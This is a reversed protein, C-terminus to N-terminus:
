DRSACIYRLEPTSSSHQTVPDNSPDQRESSARNWRFEPSWLSLFVADCWLLDSDEGVSSQFGWIESCYWIGKTHNRSFRCLISVRWVQMDSFNGTNIAILNNQLTSQVTRKCNTPKDHTALRRFGTIKLEQICRFLTPFKM